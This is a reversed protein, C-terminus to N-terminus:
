PFSFGGGTLLGTRPNQCRVLPNTVIILVTDGITVMDGSSGGGQQWLAPFSLHIIIHALSKLFPVKQGRSNGGRM